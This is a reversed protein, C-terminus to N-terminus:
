RLFEDIYQNAQEEYFDTDIAYVLYRYRFPPPLPVVQDVWNTPDTWLVLRNGMATALDDLDWHLLFGPIV